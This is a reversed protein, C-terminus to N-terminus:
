VANRSAIRVCGVIASPSLGSKALTLYAFAPYRAPASVQELSAQADGGHTMEVALVGSAEAPGCLSLPLTM